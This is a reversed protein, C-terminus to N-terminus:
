VARAMAADTATAQRRRARPRRRLPGKPTGQNGKALQAHAMESPYLLIKFGNCGFTTGILQFLTPNESIPLLQGQCLAWGASDFNFGVAIIQGV